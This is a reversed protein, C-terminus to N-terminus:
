VHQARHLRQQALLQNLVVEKHPGYLRGETDQLVIRNMFAQVIPFNDCYWKQLFKKRRKEERGIAIISYMLPNQLKVRNLCQEAIQQLEFQKLERGFHSKIWECAETEEWVFNGIMKILKGKEGKGKEQNEESM